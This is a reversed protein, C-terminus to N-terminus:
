KMINTILPAFSSVITRQGVGHGTIAKQVLKCALEHNYRQRIDASCPMKLEINILMDPAEHLLTLLQDLTPIEEGGGIDLTKLESYTWDFVYDDPFGYKALQGDDGGHLLMPVNDKSLWVDFEIGELKLEVARKFNTMSNDPGFNGGRHAMIITRRSSDIKTSNGGSITAAKALEAELNAKLMRVTRARNVRILRRNRQPRHKVGHAINRRATRAQNLHRM